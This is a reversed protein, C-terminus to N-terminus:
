VVANVPCPICLHFTVGGDANACPWLRGGHAEVITHCITLGMGLGDPKTTYFADFIRGMTEADMGIGNDRVTLEIGDEGIGATGVVVEPSDTSAPEVAEFANRILSVLVQQLQIEDGLAPPLRPDLDLRLPVHRRQGDSHVLRIVGHVLENLSVPVHVPEDKKFMARLGDIVAGARRGDHVIDTLAARVETYTNGGQLLLRQVARGNNVIACLPQNLEHALSAAFEGFTAARSVRALETELHHAELEARRDSVDYLTAHFGAGVPAVTVAVPIESGDKRLALLEASPVMAGSKPTAGVKAGRLGHGTRAFRPVLKDISQGILEDRPYGLLTAAAANAHDVGGESSVILLGDTVCELLARVNAESARLKDELTKLETIDVLAGSVTPADGM